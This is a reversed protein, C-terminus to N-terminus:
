LEEEDDDWGLRAYEKEQFVDEEYECPAYWFDQERLTTCPDCDCEENNYM